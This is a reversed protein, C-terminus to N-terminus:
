RTARARLHQLTKGRHTGQIKSGKVGGFGAQRHGQPGYSGVARPIRLTSEWAGGWGAEPADQHSGMETGAGLGWAMDRGQSQTVRHQSRCCGCCKM